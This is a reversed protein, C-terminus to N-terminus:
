RHIACWFKHRVPNTYHRLVLEAGACRDPYIFQDDRRLVFKAPDFPQAGNAHMVLHTITQNTFFNPEGQLDLLRQTGLSWDLKERLYLVGTNVPDRHEGADRFLREDASLECDALYLAPATTTLTQLANAGPFFLVDSDIYFAPGDAPLSMILALQKGTPHTTLYSRLQVPVHPLERAGSVKVCPDLQRLLAASRETHTGDSVVTIKKPRGAYRLLSRLSAVQEPMTTEGSYCFVEFPLEAEPNIRRRVIAPLAATYIARAAAGQARASHYGYNM